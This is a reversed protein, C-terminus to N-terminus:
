SPLPILSPECKFIKNEQNEANMFHITDKRLSQASKVNNPM